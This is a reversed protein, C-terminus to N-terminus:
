WGDKVTRDDLGGRRRKVDDVATKVQDVPDVGGFM